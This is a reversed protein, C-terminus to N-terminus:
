KEDTNEKERTKLVIAGTPCAEALEKGYKNTDVGSSIRSLNNEIKIDPCIKACKGCAICAAKCNKIAAAGTQENRCAVYLLKDNDDFSKLEILKRPCINVCARCGVCKNIDVQPMGSKENMTLAGFKCVSVCDGFHLCGTPCESEGVSVMNALRCSKLGSYKVKSPAKQCDGRCHIVAFERKREEAEFGLIAAIQEMVKAGGVPCYLFCFSAKDSNACAKAFEACGAKGCSGCNAEPLVKKIEEATANEEVKFKKAAFYLVAASVLATGGMVKLAILILENM